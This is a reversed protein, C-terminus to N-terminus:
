AIVESLSLVLTFPAPIQQLPTTRDVKSDGSGAVARNEAGKAQTLYLAAVLGAPENSIAMWLAGHRDKFIDGGALPQETVIRVVPERM